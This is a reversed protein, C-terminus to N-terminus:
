AAGDPDVLSRLVVELGIRGKRPEHEFTLWGENFGDLMQIRPIPNRFGQSRFLSEWTDHPVAEARVARGLLRQLGAAIDNPSVLRPGELEVVRRGKWTEQLLEAAIRGVDATAVMPIRRDLPQLLSAITGTDRAPAVDWAANELYWAPRLFTIPLPLEGLVQEQIGLQTLLNEQKVQAGVTSICVVGRPQARDLAIRLAEIIKRSEPFGPAPDFNPPLLIFVATAGGFAQQLAHPDNMDALAIDCGRAKWASGKEADRIVARVDEGNALLARAVVGGVRGTIGTVVFM